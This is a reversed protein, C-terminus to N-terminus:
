DNTLRVDVLATCMDILPVRRSSQVPFPSPLDIGQLGSLRDASLTPRTLNRSCLGVIDFHSKPALGLAGFFSPTPRIAGVEDGPILQEPSIIPKFVSQLASGIVLTTGSLLPTKTLRVSHFGIGPLHSHHCKWYTLVAFVIELDRSRKM